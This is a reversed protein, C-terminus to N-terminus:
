FDPDWDVVIRGGALDVSVLASEIFPILRERDGSVVLVDNAGTEFVETVRGLDQGERTSVALGILDAWYYEGAEAEPLEARPVAIDQGKLRAAQDRDAIGELQAVLTTGHAHGETVVREAWAGESGVWWRPYDLLGDVDETFPQIKVWGRIGYPAVIRGM